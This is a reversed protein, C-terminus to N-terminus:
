TDQYGLMSRVKDMAAKLYSTNEQLYLLAQTTADVQDDNKGRPFSMLEPIYLQDVWEYGPLAPDPLFVNGAEFFGACASARSFKGGKPDVAIIGPVLKTLMQVVGTGNAKDEVITLAAGKQRWKNLLELVKAMTKPFDYHGHFQDLLYFHAGIRGWAQGAVYDSTAEDKFACDWSLIIQDFQPPMGYWYKLTDRKFVAGGEPVPSQDLQAAANMGGLNRRMEKILSAPLRVPDLLEGVNTRPDAGWTTVTRRSPDFNAPLCIHVAGRDLLLQSLDNCHLRQMICILSNVEPPRRWRSGMTRSMWDNVGELGVKTLEEPKNPDDIVQYNAHFGTVEGGPTTGLRFGGQDNKILDIAPVTPIQFRAGWRRQWWPSQILTRFFEADRRVIKQGYAAYIWSSGPREIWGWVPFMVSTLSSKSGGPPLNVVLERIEGRFGAQYHECLLGIHWNDQFPSSPFVQPWALEVFAKLGGAKVTERDCAAIDDQLTV